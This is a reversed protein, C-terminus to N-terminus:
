KLVRSLQVQWEVLLLDFKADFCLLEPGEAYSACIRSDGLLGEPWGLGASHSAGM